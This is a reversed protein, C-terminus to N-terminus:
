GLRLPKVTEILGHKHALAYYLELGEQM